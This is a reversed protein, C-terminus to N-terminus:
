LKKIEINRFSVMDGHDQLVIRGKKFTGFDPMTKFKSGAVLQKWGEDWLTTSVVNEGNLFFDLKGDVARIETQNWEGVPKVTERSCAILDYLDGARHKNIKADSHGTNDLLQMELGTEWCKKYKSSDEKSYFIVGSNGNKSIKWECKFHFNEFEEDTAIDGGGVVVGNTKNSTDLYLVGDEIKWAAGVPGGNYTHWGTISKGDFLPTWPATIIPTEANASDSSPSSEKGNDSNCSGLIVTTCAFMALKTM